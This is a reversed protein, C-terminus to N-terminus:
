SAFKNLLPSISGEAEVTLNRFGSKAILSSRTIPQNSALMENAVIRLKRCQFVSTSESVKNIYGISKPLDKFNRRNISKYPILTRLLVSPTIQRKYNSTLLNTFNGEIIPLIEQDIKEWNIRLQKAIPRCYYKANEKLLWERCNRYLWKYLKPYKHRASGVPHLEEDALLKKWLNKNNELLSDKDELEDYNEKVTILATLRKVVNISVGLEKAIKYFTAKSKLLRLLTEKWRKGYEVVKVKRSFSNGRKSFYIKYHMGCHCKVHQDYKLSHSNYVMESEMTIMELYHDSTKNLCPWPGSEKNEHSKYNFPKQYHQLFNHILIHRSPNLIKSGRYIPGLIYEKLDINGSTRDIFELLNQDGYFSNIENILFNTDISNRKTLGLEVLKNKYVHKSYEIKPNNQLLNHSILAVIEFVINKNVSYLLCDSDPKSLMLYEQPNHNDVRPLYEKLFVKHLHCVEVPLQHSRHWYVQGCRDFDIKACIPCYKPWKRLKLHAGNLGALSKINKVNSNIMESKIREQKTEEFFYKWFPFLTFRDILDDVEIHVLGGLNKALEFLRNPFELSSHLSGKNFLCNNLKYYSGPDNIKYYRHILSYLIEDELPKPVAVIM